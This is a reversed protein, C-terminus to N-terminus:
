GFEPVTPYSKSINKWFQSPSYFGNSAVPYMAFFWFCIVGAGDTIYGGNPINKLFTPICYIKLILEAKM